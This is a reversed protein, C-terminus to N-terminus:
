SVLLGNSEFTPVPKKHDLRWRRIVRFAPEEDFTLELLHSKAGFNVEMLDDQLRTWTGELWRQRFNTYLINRSGFEILGNPILGQRLGYWVWRRHGCCHWAHGIEEHTAPTGVNPDSYGPLSTIPDSGVSSSIFGGQMEAHSRKM